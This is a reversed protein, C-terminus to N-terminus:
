QDSPLGAAMLQNERSQLQQKMLAQKNLLTSGGSGTGSLM